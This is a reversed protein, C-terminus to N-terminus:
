QPSLIKLHHWRCSEFRRRRSSFVRMATHVLLKPPSTVLRDSSGICVQRYGKPSQSGSRAMHRSTLSQMLPVEDPRIGIVAPHRILFRNKTGDDCSCVPLNSMVHTLVHTSCLRGRLNDWDEYIKSICGKARKLQNAGNKPGNTRHDPIEPDAALAPTGPLRLVPDPHRPHLLQGVRAM